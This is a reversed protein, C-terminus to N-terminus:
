TKIMYILIQFLYKEIFNQNLYEEATNPDVILILKMACTVSFLTQILKKKKERAISNEMISIM